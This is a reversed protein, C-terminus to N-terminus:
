FANGIVFVATKDFLYLTIFCSKKYTFKPFQLSLLRIFRFDTPQM